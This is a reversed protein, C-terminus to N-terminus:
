LMFLETYKKTNWVYIKVSKVWYANETSYFFLWVYGVLQFLREIRFNWSLNFDLSQMLISHM